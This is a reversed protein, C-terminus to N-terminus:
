CAKESFLLNHLSDLIVQSPFLDNGYRYHMGDILERIFEIVSLENPNVTGHGGVINIRRKRLVKRIWQRRKYESQFDVEAERISVPFDFTDSFRQIWISSKPHGIAARTQLCASEFSCVDRDGPLFFAM